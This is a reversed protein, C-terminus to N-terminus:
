EDWDVEEGKPLPEDSGGPIPEDGMFQKFTKPRDKHYDNTHFGAGIFKFQPVSLIKSTAGWCEECPPPILDHSVGHFRETVHGCEVCKWEYIPM